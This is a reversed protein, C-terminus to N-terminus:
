DSGSLLFPPRSRSSRVAARRARWVEVYLPNGPGAGVQVLAALQAAYAEPESGSYRVHWEEHIVVSAIKRLAQLAGCRFVSRRAREFADTDTLLYIRPEGRRVFGEANRAVDAPRSHVLVIQPFSDPARSLLALACVLVTEATWV